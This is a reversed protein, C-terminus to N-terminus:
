LPGRGAGFIGAPDFSRRIAAVERWSSTASASAEAATKMAPDASLVVV